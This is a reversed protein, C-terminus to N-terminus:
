RDEKVAQLRCQVKVNSHLKVMSTEHALLLGPETVVSLFTLKRM